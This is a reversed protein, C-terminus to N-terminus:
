GRPERAPQSADRMLDLALSAAAAGAAMWRRPRRLGYGALRREIDADVKLSGAQLATIIVAATLSVLTRAALSKRPERRPADVRDSKSGAPAAASEAPAGDKRGTNRGPRTAWLVGGAAAAGPLWVYARRVAPRWDAPRLLTLAGTAAATALSVVPPPLSIM